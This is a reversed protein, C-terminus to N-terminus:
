VAIGEKIWQEVYDRPIINVRGRLSFGIRGKRARKAVVTAYYREQAQSYTVQYIKGFSCYFGEYDYVEKLFEQTESYKTM